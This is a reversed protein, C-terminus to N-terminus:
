PRLTHIPTYMRLDTFQQTQTQAKRTNSTLKDIPKTCVEEFIILKRKLKKMSLLEGEFEYMQCVSTSHIPDVEDWQMLFSVLDKLDAIWQFVFHM